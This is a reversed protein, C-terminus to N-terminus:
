GISLYPSMGTLVGVFGVWAFNAHMNEGKTSPHYIAILPYKSIPSAADWDLSRLHLTQKNLTAPGWVGAVTCAAKIIEPVINIREIDKKNIGAGKAIGAIEQLYRPHTYKKTIMTNLDLLGYALQRVGKKLGKSIFVPVHNKVLLDYLQDLYYNYFQEVNSKM